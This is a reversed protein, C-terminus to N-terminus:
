NEELLRTLQWRGGTRTLQVAVVFRVPSGTWHDAGVPTQTIRWQRYVATPTDPPAGDTYGRTLTVVLHARHAAWGNWVAGPASVIHASRVAAAFPGGLWPLARKEADMPQADLTTDSGYLVRLAAQATVDPDPNTRTSLAPLGGLPIGPRGHPYPQTSAAAAPNLSLRPDPSPPRLPSPSRAPAAAATTPAAPPASGPGASAAATAPAPTANAASRPASTVPLPTRPAPPATSAATAPASRTPPAASGTGTGANAGSSPRADPTTAACGGVSAAVAVAVAVAAASSAHATDRPAPHRTM